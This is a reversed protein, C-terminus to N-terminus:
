EMARKCQKLRFCKLRRRLWEETAILKSKMQALRFCQLWGRTVVTLEKLIQEFSVGRKRDTITKLKDNLRQESSRSMGLKSGYLLSHGLLNVQYCPKIGSKERNVRLKM